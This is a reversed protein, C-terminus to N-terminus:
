GNVRAKKKQAVEGADSAKRKGNGSDEVTQMEEWIRELRENAASVEKKAAGVESRQTEIIKTLCEVRPFRKELDKIEEKLRQEALRANMSSTEAKDARISLLGQTRDAREKERQYLTGAEKLKEELHAITSASSKKEALSNMIRDYTSVLPRCHAQETASKRARTSIQKNNQSKVDWGPGNVCEMWEEFEEKPIGVLERMEGKRTFNFPYMRFRWNISEFLHNYNQPTSIGQPVGGDPSNPNLFTEMCEKAYALGEPPLQSGHGQLMSIELDKEDYLPWTRPDKLSYDSNNAKLDEIFTYIGSKPKGVRKEPKPVYSSAM